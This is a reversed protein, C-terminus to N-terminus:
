RGAPERERERKVHVGRELESMRISMQENQEGISDVINTLAKEILAGNDVLQTVLPPTVRDTGPLKTSTSVQTKSRQRSTEEFDAEPDAPPNCPGTNRNKGPRVESNTMTVFDGSQNSRNTTKSITRVVGFRATSGTEGNTYADNDQTSNGLNKQSRLDVQEDDDEEEEQTEAEDGTGTGMTFPFIKGLTNKLRESFSPSTAPKETAGHMMTNDKSSRTTAVNETSNDSLESMEERDLTGTSTAFDQAQEVPTFESALRTNGCGEPGHGARNEDITPDPHVEVELMEKQGESSKQSRTEVMGGSIKKGKDTRTRAIREVFSDNMAKRQKDTM